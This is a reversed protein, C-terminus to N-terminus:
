SPGFESYDTMGEQRYSEYNAQFKLVLERAADYHDDPDGWALHPLLVETPIGELACPVDFGFHQDLVCPADDVSGDLIADVCARTTALPMREGVGIGGGSWGTNVLYVHTGHAELKRALLDAYKSPHLTLFAKGFCASFTAEPETVGRETGAIKATYGSLFHYM